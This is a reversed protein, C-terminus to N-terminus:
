RVRDVTKAATVRAGLLEVTRHLSSRRLWRDPQAGSVALEAARRDHAVVGLEAVGLAPAVESAKYPHEGVSVPVVRVGSRSLAEIHWRAHDVGEVSPRLVLLTVSAAALLDCVPSRAAWRGADIIVPSEVDKLIRGLDTGLATLATTAHTESTPAMLARVGCPLIQLHREVM